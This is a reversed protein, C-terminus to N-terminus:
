DKLPYDFVCAELTTTRSQGAGLTLATGKTAADALSPFDVAPELALIRRGYAPYDKAGGWQRWIGLTPFLSAEWRLSFGAGSAANRITFYGVDFGTLVTFDDDGDNLQLREGSPLEIECESSVFPEGFCPHHGWFVGLAQSSENCVTEILSLRGEGAEVVMRRELAVPMRRLRTRFLVEVREPRDDLITYDWGLNTAEGHHGFSAGGYECPVPGNPMMVFWGGAFRDRFTGGPLPSSPADQPSGLGRPTQYLVETDTPKHTLELIDCGKDPCIVARVYRNELLVCRQGRWVYERLRCGFNRHPAFVPGELM